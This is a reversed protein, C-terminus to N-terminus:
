KWNPAFFQTTMIVYCHSRNIVRALTFVRTLTFACLLARICLHIVDRSSQLSTTKMNQYFFLCMFCKFNDFYRNNIVIVKCWRYQPWQTFKDTITKTRQIKRQSSSKRLVEVWFLWRWIECLSRLFSPACNNNDLQVLGDHNFTFYSSLHNNGKNQLCPIIFFICCPVSPLLSIVMGSTNSSHSRVSM